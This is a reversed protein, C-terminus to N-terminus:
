TVVPTTSSTEGAGIKLHFFQEIRAVSARKIGGAGGQAAEM